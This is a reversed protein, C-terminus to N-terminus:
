HNDSSEDMFLQQPFFHIVPGRRRTGRLSTPTARSPVLVLVLVAAAVLVVAVVAVVAM